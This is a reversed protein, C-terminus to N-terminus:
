TGLHCFYVGYRSLEVTTNSLRAPAFGHGALTRGREVGLHDPLTAPVPTASLNFLALIREGEHSRVFALVPEPVDLLEISGLRLAPIGRRWNVFTRFVSLVSDAEAEQRAVSLARHEDPIPLWPRASSFGAHPEADTWPMPTRCGDRGKIEPWLNLGYPDQMQHYPIEAETLGLEEGQYICVSGRLSLLMASLVKALEPQPGAGGWRTVVRAVDHNSLSWCLWGDGIEREMSEIVRRIHGASFERTLLGFAYGMHLKDSGSTYEAMVKAAEEAGIEGVTTTGPYRDLLQRLRRLFDINEPRTKDYIHHQYAYPNQRVVGDVRTGGPDSPPNDRLEKDHTYMNVTDLRFGDVGRKLWFEVEDLLQYQVERNHFNLDPQSPLFQHFYYQLRHSDWQWAPGGFYSLWNNPPTGDPKPDAWVYWDAKASDPSQRSDRFWSHQDSSHNLVQDIIIKLGLQHGKQVVADFDDLTGFIPEVARYDSVDYGFDKMPSRFFPSLWVADVGLRAVYELRAAIGPLDGIGDGNSDFFSRPYIQYIIAGRWWDQPRRAASESSDTKTTDGM